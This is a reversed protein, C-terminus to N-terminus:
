SQSVASIIAHAVQDKSIDSHNLIYPDANLNYTKGAEFEYTGDVDLLSGRQAEPTKQAGNRGLGGYRDNEDGLAAADQGALLSALPYAIGVARDNKTHSIVIPGLVLNNSIVGRFFGDRTGDYANAFGYHSFAAQLLNLTNPNVPPQGPPGLAAATVVRAGFSHGVLHLKVDERRARVARLVQYVGGAGVKGGRAKMQYYTLFNLFNRVGSRVGTFWQGIGAAGGPAAGAEDMTVGVVGGAAGGSSPGPPAPMVPRSLRDIVEEGPLSLFEESADEDETADTPVMRRLLDVFEKQAVPSDELKPVMSKAQELLVDAEPDDFAGKLDELQEELVAETVPSDAAAAGSPILESEAFKKSPWLIGLVGFTRGETPIRRSDIEDKMRQFFSQYLARAESMDNNWGHSIVFLDTIERREVMQLLEDLQESRHIEGHKTFEIEGYPFGHMDQM